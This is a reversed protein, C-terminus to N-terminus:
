IIEMVPSSEILNCQDTTDTFFYIAWSELFNVVSCTKPHQQTIVGPTPFTPLLCLLVLHIHCNVMTRRMTSQAQNLIGDNIWGERGSGAYNQSRKKVASMCVFIDCPGLFAVNRKDTNWTEALIAWESEQRLYQRHINFTKIIKKM